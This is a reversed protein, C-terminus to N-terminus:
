LFADDSCFDIFPSGSLEVLSLIQSCDKIVKNLLLIVHPERPM